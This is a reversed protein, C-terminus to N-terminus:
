ETPYKVKYVCVLSYYNTGPAPSPNGAEQSFYAEEFYQLNITSYAWTTTEVGYRMLKYLTSNQGRSNVMIEGSEANGYSDFASGDGNVDYWDYGLYGTLNGFDADNLGPIKAMWTWKANDGGLSAFV